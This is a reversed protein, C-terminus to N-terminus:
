GVSIDDLHATDGEFHLVCRVNSRVNAGFSNQSDVTGIVTWSGESEEAALEYNADAPAKLRKDAFGECQAEAEAENNPDYPESSCGVVLLVAAVSAMGRIKM